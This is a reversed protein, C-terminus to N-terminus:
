TKWQSLVQPVYVGIFCFLHHSFIHQALVQMMFGFGPPHFGLHSIGVYRSGQQLNVTVNGERFPEDREIRDRACACVCVFVCVFMAMCV